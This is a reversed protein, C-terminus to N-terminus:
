QTRQSHDASLGALDKIYLRPVSILQDDIITSVDLIQALM